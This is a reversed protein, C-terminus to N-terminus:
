IKLPFVFIFIFCKKLSKNIVYALLYTIPFYKILQKLFVISSQIYFTIGFIYKDSFITLNNMKNNYFKSNFNQNSKFLKIIKLNFVGM